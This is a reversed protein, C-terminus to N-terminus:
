NAQLTVLEKKMEPASHILLSLPSRRPVLSQLLEWLALGVRYRPCQHTALTSRVVWFGHRSAARTAVDPPEGRQSMRHNGLEGMVRSEDCNCLCNESAIRKWASGSPEVFRGRGLPSTTQCWFVARGKCSRRSVLKRARVAFHGCGGGADPHNPRLLHGVAPAVQSACRQRARRHRSGDNRGGLLPPRNGPEALPSNERHFRQDNM